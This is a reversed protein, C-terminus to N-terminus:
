QLKNLAEEIRGLTKEKGLVLAVDFPGASSKQGTMAVRLPWLMYGRDTKGRLEEGFLRSEELMVQELRQQNWENEDIDSLLSRSRDLSLKVEGREQDKWILLDVDYSTKDTLLPRVLEPIESLKKAREQYLSLIGELKRRGIGEGTEVVVFSDKDQSILNDKVLFPLCLETFDSIKKSRIYWGNLYDLKKLNFVSGSSRVKRLSFEKILDDISYIEQKGGPNWGLFALFNIIAEPLYGEERYQSVATAGFRKSLKGGEPSLIVPLHAFEPVDWGFAEYIMIQRPTNSLIDEGRIIHSIKMLYDDIVCAANYLPDDISRALSFDGIDSSDFEVEGRVIDEFVIKQSPTKFRIVHDETEARKRAEDSSIDRCTGSYIPAKGLSMFYQRQAELDEKSCFCYYAKGEDMLQGIHKEYIEKRASQRYPGYEGEKGPGEDWDLGLWRMSECIDEEFEKKSRETDTDEVRFIFTGDNQKAFLYNFLFARVVGVHLLGTPSPAMRVRVDGKSKLKFKESM